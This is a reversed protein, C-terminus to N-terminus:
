RGLVTGAIRDFVSKDGLANASIMAGELTALIALAETQARAGDLNPNKKKIVKSLWAANQEFFRKAEQKVGEPLGSSEAGLIGCLCIQKDTLMAKRFLGVYGELLAAPAQGSKELRDLASMFRDSYTSTVAAGLDEKTPFHHHVSASKVGVDSAIDRFSFGHFGANRIRKEAAAVIKETTSPKSKAM